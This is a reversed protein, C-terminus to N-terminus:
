VYTGTRLGEIYIAGAEDHALPRSTRVAPTVILHGIELTFDVHVAFRGGHRLDQCFRNDEGAGPAILQDSWAFFPARLREIPERRTLLFGLGTSSVPRVGPGDAGAELCPARNQYTAGEDHYFGHTVSRYPPTRTPYYGGVIPLEHSLLRMLADSAPAMDSDCWLMWQLHPRHLFALLLHARKLTLVSPGTAFVVETGAPRELQILAAAAATYMWEVAPVAIMGPGHQASEADNM